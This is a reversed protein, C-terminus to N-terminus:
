PGAYDFPAVAAYKGSHDYQIGDSVRFTESTGFSMEKCVLGEPLVAGPHIEAGTVPNKITTLELEVADGLKARTEFGALELEFPVARVDELDYTNIFIGWPGGNGGRVLAEIAERQADDAREDYFCVARGGGEHIAGPWDATVTWSLGDLPVDGFSGQEVHWLWQGECDGSSPPANFNCPCGYDCNCAIILTGKVQWRTTNETTAM